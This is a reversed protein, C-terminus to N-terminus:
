MSASSPYQKMKMFREVEALNSTIRCEPLSNLFMRGYHRTKLRPDLIAVMGKDEKGRILRGFGQKLLIIAQPIQYSMFPNKDQAKLLEIKAEVVPDNPVAFPLKTIIVCQLADGPVDVGQWFTNTGLLVSSKEEKFKELLQYRPMDGQRLINLEGSERKLEEYAQTLMQFSTFLIFTSGRTIQLIKKIESIVESSYLHSQQWPEPMQSPIYLVVQKSYDFPSSLLLEKGNELGLRERLYSFNKNTALTASTLIVVKIKDFVRIRLEKAIDIPAACLAYNARERSIVEAWYVYDKREQGLIIRLNDRIETCRSLYSTLEIKEEEDTKDESLSSLVVILNSLPEDLVNALLMKERIRQKVAGPPLEERLRSFFLDNAGRTENVLEELLHLEREKLNSIRFLFGKQTRANFLGNLLNRIEGRFVKIGLFSTAVDELNHAEDFVVADFPPLVKEGSALHAFFLHHNIVLIQSKQGEKRAKMYYCDRQYPCRKGMCLDAQRCVRNWVKASPEFNLESKLGDELHSESQFIKELEKVEKKTDLLGYFRAQALRRLCLYNEGGMALAFHFDIGLAERLFPLDKKILQHQLTRTYTSIIARKNERITWYVFPVLYALSKGIGTGAEVILHEGQRIAREIEMAMQIQEKRKEYHKLKQAIIGGKGLIEELKKEVPKVKLTKTTKNTM